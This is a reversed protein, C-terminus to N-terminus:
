VGNSGTKDVRLHAAAHGFFHGALEEGLHRRSAVSFHVVHNERHEKEARFMGSVDRALDNVHTASKVHPSLSMQRMLVCFLVCIFSCCIPETCCPRSSLLKREEM